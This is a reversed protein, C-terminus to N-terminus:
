LNKLADEFIALGKDLDERNINLPTAFRFGNGYVGCSLTLLGHHLCYDKVKNLAEASPSKDLNVFEVAMMLGLGRVDGMVPYKKQMELLRARLYDGQTNVNELINEEEFVKLVALGAAACVPHGGFTTGHMGPKWTEMIENTSVIASMPLGGAIAKGLTMIDPMVDFHESAFMKGTRGFGSQIEDFILLIGHKTCLKRLEQVFRKPPVVYGGEGMVPEMIIAAVNEPAILYDFTRQLEQLCDLSCKDETTNYPCRYCTPYPTFYVSPLLPEQNKRYKSNSGTISAAGITRGHFSGRFSIIGPRHTFNRALKLAGDNAEAGGNSFFIVDLDGPTVKSLEKALGLTTPYNVLNFSASILKETQACIAKVVEPHCHGLANVAIGQVFDLYTNGDVDTIYSGKASEVVLNTAKALVPSLYEKYDDYKMKM